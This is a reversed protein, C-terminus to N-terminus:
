YVRPEPKWKTITVPLYSIGVGKKTKYVITHKLWNEDDRQPYEMVFHAGRSEKRNLACFTVAEALELLNEIEFADRINTNFIAGKDAININKFREKLENIKDRATILDKRNRYVYVLEGMTKQLESRITYPNESGNRDLLSAARREEEKVMDKPMKAEAAEKSEVYAAVATGAIRGWVACQSLSNSGLRNSGHVSVCGCEGIAWLGAVTTKSEDAMVQGNVNTHIGGMTFHAAPRVPLPEKVPDIGLSKKAIERIMPLREDLLKEGLHRLDLQVYALGSSGHSFGRGEKIETIIARSIIDRPALEMKSKAYNAMFREGKSNLLYGGEGRAGETILIGNPVLATPHFQVFEM